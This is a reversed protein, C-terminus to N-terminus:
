LMIPLIPLIFNERRWGDPLDSSKEFTELFDRGKERRKKNASKSAGEGGGVYLHRLRPPMVAKNIEKVNVRRILDGHDIVNQLLPGAFFPLPQGYLV